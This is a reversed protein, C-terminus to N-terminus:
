GTQGVGGSTYFRQAVTCNVPQRLVIRLRGAHVRLVEEFNNRRILVSATHFCPSAANKLTAKGKARCRDDFVSRDTLDNKGCEM